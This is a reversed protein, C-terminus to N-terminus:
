RLNVGGGAGWLGRWMGTHNPNGTSCKLHSGVLEVGFFLGKVFDSDVAEPHVLVCYRVFLKMTENLLGSIDREGFARWFSFVIGAGLRLQEDRSGDDKTHRFSADIQ